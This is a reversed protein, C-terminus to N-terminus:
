VILFTTIVNQALSICFFSTVWTSVNKAFIQCSSTLCTTKSPSIAASVGDSTAAFEVEIGIGAAALMHILMDSRQSYSISGSLSGCLMFIPGLVIYKNRGAFFPKINPM